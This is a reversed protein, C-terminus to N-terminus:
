GSYKDTCLTDLFNVFERTGKRKLRISQVLCVTMALVVALLYLASVVGFSEQVGLNLFVGPVMLLPLVVSLIIFTQNPRIQFRIESQDNLSHVSGSIRYHPKEIMSVGEYSARSQLWFRNGRVKEFLIDGNTSILNELSRVLDKAEIKMIKSPM